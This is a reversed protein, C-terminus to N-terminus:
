RPKFLCDPSRSSPRILVDSHSRRPPPYLHEKPAFLHHFHQPNPSQTPQAGGGVGALHRTLPAPLPSLIYLFCVSRRQRPAKHFLLPSTSPPYTPISPPPNPSPPIPRGCHKTFAHSRPSLPELTCSAPSLSHSLFSPLPVPCPYPPLPLLPLPPPRHTHHTSPASQAPTSASHIPQPKHASDHPNHVPIHVTM